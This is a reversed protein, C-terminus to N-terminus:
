SDIFASAADSLQIDLHNSFVRFVTKVKEQTDASDIRVFGANRLHEKTSFAAPYQELKAKWFKEVFPVFYHRYLSKSNKLGADITPISALQLHMADAPPQTSSLLFCGIMYIMDRYDGTYTDFFQMMEQYNIQDILIKEFLTKAFSFSVPDKIQFHGTNFGSEIMAPYQDPTVNGRVIDLSFSLAIPLLVFFYVGVDNSGITSMMRKLVEDKEEGAQIRKKMDVFFDDIFAQLNYAMTYNKDDIMYFLNGELVPTFRGAVVEKSLDFSKYAWNKAREIQNSAEFAVQLGTAVMFKREDFYFGGELLADNTRYLFGPEPVVFHGDGFSTATGTELLEVLYKIANGFRIILAQRLSSGNFNDLLLNYGTEFHDLAPLLQGTMTLGIGVEGYMKITDDQSYHDSSLCIQLGKKSLELSQNRDRKYVAQMYSIYYDLQEAYFPPIEISAIEDFFYLAGTNDGKLFYRRGIEAYVLFKYLPDTKWVREFESVIETTGSLDNLDEATHRILYCIAYTSLLLLNRNESQIILYRLLPVVEDPKNKVVVNRYISVAAMAYITNTQIDAPIQDFPQISDILRFWEDFGDKSSLNAFAVWIGNLMESDVFAGREIIGQEEIGMLLQYATVLHQIAALPEKALSQRFFLLEAVAKGLVGPDEKELIELLDQQLFGTDQKADSGVSIQFVRLQVKFFPTVDEPLTEHWWFMDFGWDFVWQPNAAFETLVQHLVLVARNNQEAKKFYVIAKMADIQSINKNSVIQIGLQKNIEKECAADINGSLRKILPSLQLNGNGDDEIWTGRLSHLKEAINQIPDCLGGVTEATERSFSGMISRLRYLLQRTSEDTTSQLIRGYSERDTDDGFKGTFIGTLAKEDVSWQQEKLYGAASQILLPHGNTITTVLGSFLAADAESAGHNMLLEQTDEESFSPAPYNVINLGFRTEIQEPAAYNSTVLVHINKSAAVGFFEGLQDQVLPHGHLEPIDNVVIISDTEVKDFIAQLTAPYKSQLPVGLSTTLAVVLHETMQESNVDRCDIWLSTKKLHRAVLVALMTKGTASAGHLWLADSGETQQGIDMTAKQRLSSVVISPVALSGTFFSASVNIQETSTKDKLASLAESLMGTLQDIKANQDIPNGTALPIIEKELLHKISNFKILDQEKEYIEEIKSILMEPYVIDDAISFSSLVSSPTKKTGKGFKVKATDNLILFRIGNKFQQDLKEKVVTELNEIIKLNDTRSTVQYAVMASTQDGIDLGPFNAKVKNLDELQYGYMLNLLQRSLHEGVKNIDTYKEYSNLRIETIWNGILRRIQKMEAQQNSMIFIKLTSDGGSTEM